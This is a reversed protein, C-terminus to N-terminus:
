NKFTPTFNQERWKMFEEQSKINKYDDSGIVKLTAEINEPTYYGKLQTIQNAQEDLFVMSPYSNIKFAQALQHQNGRGNTEVYNPNTFTYGKFNVVENGEADFKVPYFNENIYAAVDPHHFTNKELMKCPGCWKTYIDMFIKKPEKKQAQEAETLTMWHIESNEQKHSQTKPSESAVAVSEPKQACALSMIFVGTLILYKTMMIHKDIRLLNKKLFLMQALINDLVM